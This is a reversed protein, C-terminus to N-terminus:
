KETYHEKVLELKKQLLRKKINMRLLIEIKEREIYTLYKGKARKTTYNAQIMINKEKPIKDDLSIM